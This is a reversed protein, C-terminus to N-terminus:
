NQDVIVRGPAELGAERVQSEGLADRLGGGHHVQRQEIV